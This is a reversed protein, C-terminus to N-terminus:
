HVFLSARYAKPSIGVTATFIESFYHISTYGLFESIETISYNTERLLIKAKEIKLHIYYRKYNMGSSKFFIHRVREKSMLFQRSLKELDVTKDINETLYQVMQAFLSDDETPATKIEVTADKAGGMNERFLHILLLELYIKIAHHLMINTSKNYLFLNVKYTFTDKIGLESIINKLIIHIIQSTKLPKGAIDYFGKFDSAFSITIVDSSHQGNGFVRHFQNPPILIAEETQLTFQTDDLTTCIIGRSIYMLEWFNHKEGMFVHDKSFESYYIAHLREISFDTKLRYLKLHHEKDM